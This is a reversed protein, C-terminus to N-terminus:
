HQYELNGEKGVFKEFTALLHKDMEEFKSDSTTQDDVAKVYKKSLNRKDFYWVSLVQSYRGDYKKQICDNIKPLEASKSVYVYIQAYYGNINEKEIVFYRAIRECGVSEILSISDAVTSNKSSTYIATDKTPTDNCSLLFYFIASLFFLNEKKNSKMKFPSNTSIRVVYSFKGPFLVTFVGKKAQASNVAM